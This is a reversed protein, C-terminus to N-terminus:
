GGARVAAHVHNFHNENVSGRDAMKKWRQSSPTWIQQEFIVHDIHFEAANKVLYNAIRWGLESEVHTTLMIDVARGNKHFARGGARWGGFSNVDPFLACVSRYIRITSPLLKDEFGASQRTCPEEIIGAALEPTEETLKSALVWGDEGDLEVRQYDGVVEDSIQVKDGIDFAAIAEADKKAAALVPVKAVTYARHKSLLDQSSGALEPEAIIGGIAARVEPEPDVATASPQPSFTSGALAPLGANLAFASVAIFAVAGGAAASLRKVFPSGWPNEARRPRSRVSSLQSQSSDGLVV